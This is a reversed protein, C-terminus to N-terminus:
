IAYMALSTTFRSTSASVDLGFSGRGHRVPYAQFHEFLQGDLVPEVFFYALDQNVM